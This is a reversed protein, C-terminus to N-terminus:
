NGPIDLIDTGWLSTSFFSACGSRISYGPASVMHRALAIFSSTYEFPVWVPDSKKHLDMGLHEHVLLKMQNDHATFGVKVLEHLAKLRSVRHMQVAAVASTTM